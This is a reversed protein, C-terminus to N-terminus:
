GTFILQTKVMIPNGDEDKKLLSTDIYFAHDGVGRLINTGGQIYTLSPCNQFGSYCMDFNSKVTM